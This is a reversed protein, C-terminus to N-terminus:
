KNQKIKRRMKENNKRDGRNADVCIKVKKM